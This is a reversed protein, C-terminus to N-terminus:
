YMSKRVEYMAISAAVSLNLSDIDKSHPIYVVEGMQRYEDSLGSGENGFVLSFPSPYKIDNFRKSGGLMFMYMPNNFKSRYQEINEFYQVKIQFLAGMASRVIMPDFVDVAPKILALNYMGFGVMTRIITGVNGMNSPNVLVIHDKGDELEMEYKEFIGVAYTNEKVSLKEIARDNYEYEIDNAGCLEIIQEVGDSKLSDSKLLVKSVRQPIHKLLDLTPYTGMAYTHSFDKSYRKLKFDRM